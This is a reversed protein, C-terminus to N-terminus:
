KETKNVKKIKIMSKNNKELEVTVNKMKSIFDIYEKKNPVENKRNFNFVKNINKEINSMSENKEQYWYILVIMKDENKLYKINQYDVYEIIGLIGIEHYWNKLYNNFMKNTGHKKIFQLNSDNYNVLKYKVLLNLGNITKIKSLNSYKSLSSTDFHEYIIEVYSSMKNELLIKTLKNIFVNPINKMQSSDIEQIFINIDKMIINILLKDNARNITSYYVVFDWNKQLCNNDYAFEILEQPPYYEINNFVINEKKIIETIIDLNNTKELVYKIATKSNIKYKSKLYIKKMNKELEVKFYEIIQAGFESNRITPYDLTETNILVKLNTENIDYLRNKAIISLYEKYSISNKDLFKSLDTFKINLKKLNSKVTKDELDITKSNGYELIIYHLKEFNNLERTNISTKMMIDLIILNYKHEEDFSNNFKKNYSNWIKVANKSIISIFQQYFDNDEFKLYHLFDLHKDCIINFQFIVQSLEKKYKNSNQILEKLLSPNLIYPGGLDTQIYKLINDINILETEYDVEQKKVRDIFRSETGSIYDNNVVSTVYDIYDDEIYQKYILEDFLEKEKNQQLLALAKKQCFDPDTKKKQLAEKKTLLQNLDVKYIDIKKKFSKLDNFEIYNINYYRNNIGFYANQNLLDINFQDNLFYDITHNQGNIRIMTPLINNLNNYYLLLEKWELKNKNSINNIEKIKEEIDSIEKEIEDAIELEKKEIRKSIENKSDFLNNYEKTYFNKFVAMAFIKNKNTSPIIKTLLNYDNVISKIIRMDQIYQSVTNILEESINEYEDKEITQLTTVFNIYSNHSTSIPATSIIYDYLKVREEPDKFIGDGFSYVFTIKKNVDKSGNLVLNLERLDEIIKTCIDSGYRDMDEFFITHYDSNIFFYLIEYMNNLFSFKNNKDNSQVELENDKVKLKFRIKNKSIFINTFFNFLLFLICFVLLLICGIEIYSNDFFSYFFIYHSMFVNYSPYNSIFKITFFITIYLAMLAYCYSKLKWYKIPKPINSLKSNNYKIRYVLQKIISKELIEVLEEENKELTGNEKKSIETEDKSNSDTGEKNLTSNNQLEEAIETKANNDTTNLFSGISIIITTKEKKDYYYRYTKIISSKGTGYAGTIAINKGDKHHIASHLQKIYMDTGIDPKMVVPSLLNLKVYNRKRKYKDIKERSINIIKKIYTIVKM